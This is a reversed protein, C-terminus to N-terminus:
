GDLRHCQAALGRRLRGAFSFLDPLSPDLNTKVRKELDNNIINSIDAADKAAATPHVGGGWRM